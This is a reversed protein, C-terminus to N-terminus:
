VNERKWATCYYSSSDMHSCHWSTWVRFTSWILGHFSTVIEVESSVYYIHQWMPQIRDRVFMRGRLICYPAFNGMVNRKICTADPVLHSKRWETWSQLKSSRIIRSHYVDRTAVPCRLFPWVNQEMWSAKLGAMFDCVRSFWRTLVACQVGERGRETYLLAFVVRGSCCMIGFVHM